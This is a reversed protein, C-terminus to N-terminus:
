LTPMRKECVKGSKNSDANDFFQDISGGTASELNGRSGFITACLDAMRLVHPACHLSSVHVSAILCVVPPCCYVVATTLSTGCSQEVSAYWPFVASRATRLERFRGSHIGICYLALFGTRCDTCVRSCGTATLLDTFVVSADTRACMRHASGSVAADGEFRQKKVDEFQRLLVDFNLSM